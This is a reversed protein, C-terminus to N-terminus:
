LQSASPTHVPSPPSVSAQLLLADVARRCFRTQGGGDAAGGISAQQRNRQSCSGPEVRSQLEVTREGPIVSQSSAAGDQQQNLSRPARM